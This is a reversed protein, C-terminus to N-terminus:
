IEKSSKFALHVLLNGKKNIDKPTILTVEVLILIIIVSYDGNESCKKFEFPRM